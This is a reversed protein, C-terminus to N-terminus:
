KCPEERTTKAEAWGLQYGLQYAAAFASQFLGFAETPNGQDVKRRVKEWVDRSYPSVADMADTDDMKGPQRPEPMRSLLWDVYDAKTRPAADGHRMGRPRHMDYVARLEALKLASLGDRTAKGKGLLRDQERAADTMRDYISM